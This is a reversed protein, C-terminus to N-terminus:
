DHIPSDVIGGSMTLYHNLRQTLTLAYVQISELHPLTDHSFRDDGSAYMTTGPGLPLPKTAVYAEFAVHSYWQPLFINPPFPSYGPTPPTHTAGIESRLHFVLWSFAGQHAMAQDYGQWALLGAFSQHFQSGNLELFSRHVGDRIDYSNITGLGQISSSQLSQQTHSNIRDQWTFNFTKENGFIPAISGIVYARPTDVIRDDFGLAFKIDPRYIFHLGQVSNATSGFYLPVDESAGALNSVAYGPDTSYTFVYSPLPLSRAGPLAVKVNTLRVDSGVHAVARAAIAFPAEGSFDPVVLPQANPPNAPPEGGIVGGDVVRRQPPEDLAVLLGQHHDLDDGFVDGHASEIVAGGQAPIPHASSVSVDGIALYRKARLDLTIHNASVHVVGDDLFARGTADLVLHSAYFQVGAGSITVTQAAAARASAATLM